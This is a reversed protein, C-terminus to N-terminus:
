RPACMPGTIEDFAAQWLPGVLLDGCTARTPTRVSVGDDLVFQGCSEVQLQVVAAGRDIHLVLWSGDTGCSPDPSATSIPAARVADLLRQAAMDALVYSGVLNPGSRQPDVMYQCVVVESATALDAVAESGTSGDVRTVSCGRVDVGGDVVQATGLIQEALAVDGDPAEVTLFASGVVRNVQVWGAGVEVVGDADAPEARRWTVHTQRLADPMPETCLISREVQSLPNRQVFPQPERQYGPTACWDAGPAFGYGWEPPVAIAADLMSEWRWGDPAVPAAPANQAGGAAVEPMGRDYGGAPGPAAAPAASRVNFMSSMTGVVPAVVVLVVAAAALKLWPGRGRRRSATPAWRGSGANEEGVARSTLTAPDLVEFDVGEAHEAFARVLAREARDHETM